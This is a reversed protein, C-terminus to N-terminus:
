QNDNLLKYLETSNFGFIREQNFRKILANPINVNHLVKWISLKQYYEQELPIIIADISKLNDKWWKDFLEQKEEQTYVVLPDIVELPINFFENILEVDEEVEPNRDAETHVPM